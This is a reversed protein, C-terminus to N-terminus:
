SAHVRPRAAIRAPAPRLAAGYLAPWHLMRKALRLDGEADGDGAPCAARLEAALSPDVSDYRHWRAARVTYADLRALVQARSDPLVPEATCISPLVGLGDLMYGSPAHLRSWTLVLEGGNPLRTLNQVTGKGHTTTGVVVARGRDQLSAAFVEAASASHGNTLLVMPVGTAIRHRDATFVTSAAPHRGFTSIVVGDKLFLDAALVAQDLLGGPNNRLDIVIGRVRGRPLERYQRELNRATTRNFSAIRIVAVDGDLETHVTIPVVHARHITIRLPQPPITRRVDLVVLSGAPGRLKEVVAATDLGALPEGDVHTIEDGAALGGSAAPTGELVEVVRTVGDKTQITIGIGDFGERAARQQEAMRATAYRSFPDLLGVVGDLVTQYVDEAPWNRLAPQVTGTREVVAATVDAWGEADHAGPRSFEAVRNGRAMVALVGAREQLRLGPDKQAALLGRIGNVALPAIAVPEIYRDQIYTYADAFVRRAATESFPESKPGSSQLACGALLLGVLIPAWPVPRALVRGLARMRCLRLRMLVGLILRVVAPRRM